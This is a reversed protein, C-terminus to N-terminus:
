GWDLLMITPAINKWYNSATNVASGVVPAPFIYSAKCLSVYTRGPAKMPLVVVLGVSTLGNATVGTVGTIVTERPL